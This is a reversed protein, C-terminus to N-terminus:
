IVKAENKLKDVLEDVSEVFVGAEREPPATVKDVRYRPAIDAGLDDPSLTEVPKKKAKMMDPLKAYRPENLRLDVTLVAPASLKLRQLGGDIERTITLNDGDQEIASIYTAQPWDLLAALMQGTQNHDGDVAQKGMLVLWPDERAVLEKLLKAVGLPQIDGEDYSVHISRDAGVAMANKLVDASAQPGITVAVVEDVTGAEKMRVAQELAIECFPNMSMKVNETEVGSQDRKVRVRVYADIVRKVPVLIKSM